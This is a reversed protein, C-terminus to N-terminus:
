RKRRNNKLEGNSQKPEEPQESIESFTTTDGHFQLLIKGRPGNRHKVVELRRQDENGEVPEIKLVIDADQGIARSERLRGEDNLQSLLIVPVKLEKAMQKLNRSVEAVERERNSGDFRGTGTILQCYDVVVIALKRQAAHRRANSRLQLITMDSSDEIVMAPGTAFRSIAVNVKNLQDNTLAKHRIASLPVRSEGSLIRDTIEDGTMELCYILGARDKTAAWFAMQVGLASKGGGTAGGIVVLQGPVLGGTMQDFTPIGTAVGRLRGGRAMNEEIRTLASTLLAPWTKCERKANDSLISMLTAEIVPQAAIFDRENQVTVMAERLSEYALRRRTLNRIEGAVHIAAQGSLPLEALLATVQAPTLKPRVTELLIPTQESHLQSFAAFTPAWVGFDQVTLDLRDMLEPQLLIGACIAGESAPDSWAPSSGM